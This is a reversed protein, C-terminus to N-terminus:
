NIPKIIIVFDLLVLIFSRLRVINIWNLPVQNELAFDSSLNQFIKISKTQWM